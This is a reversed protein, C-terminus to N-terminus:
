TRTLRRRLGSAIRSAVRRVDAAVTLPEQPERPVPARQERMRRQTRARTRRVAKMRADNASAAAVDRAIARADRVLDAYRRSLEDLRAEAEENHGHKDALMTCALWTEEAVAQLEVPIALDDWTVQHRRLGPDVFDDVPHRRESGLDTNYTLGLDDRVLAMAVRWAEILDFYRLFVRPRGRTQRETVLNANVWRAINTVQYDRVAEADGKAYYTARSGVVEAPHRLMTLYGIQLGARDAADAWVGPMWASRPDKVVVQPAHVAEGTLWEAVEDVHEPRLVDQILDVAEPRADVTDINALQMIRRHFQIAWFSEFFGRPNSRNTALVPQPLHLGLYSLAGAVTSTGSRGAGTVLVFRRPASTVLNATIVPDEYTESRM